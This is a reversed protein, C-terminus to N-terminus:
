STLLICDNLTCDSVRISRRGVVNEKVVEDVWRLVGEDKCFNRLVVAVIEDDDDVFIVSEDAGINHMILRLDLMALPYRRQRTDAQPGNTIHDWWLTGIEPTEYVWTDPPPYPVELPSVHVVPVSDIFAKKAAPDSKLGLERVLREHIRKRRAVLVKRANLADQLAPLTKNEACWTTFDSFINKWGYEPPYQVRKRLISTYQEIDSPNYAAALLDLLERDAAVRDALERLLLQSDPPAATSM